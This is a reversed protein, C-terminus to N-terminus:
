RNSLNIKAQSGDLVKDVKIETVKHKFKKYESVIFDAFEGELKDNKVVLKDTDIDFVITVYNSFTDLVNFSIILGKDVASKLIGQTQLQTKTYDDGFNAYIYVWVRQKSSQKAEFLSQSFSKLRTM